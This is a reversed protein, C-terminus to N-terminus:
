GPKGLRSSQQLNDSNDEGNPGLLLLFYLVLQGLYDRM